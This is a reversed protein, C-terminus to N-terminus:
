EVWGEFPDRLHQEKLLSPALMVEKIESSCEALLRDRKAFFEMWTNQAQPTAPTAPSDALVLVEVSQGSILPLPKSLILKQPNDLIIQERYAYM